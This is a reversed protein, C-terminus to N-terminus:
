GALQFAAALGAGVRLGRVGVPTEAVTGWHAADELPPETWTSWHVDIGQEQSAPATRRWRRSPGPGSGLSATCDPSPSGRPSCPARGATSSATRPRLSWPSARPSPPTPRAADDMDNMTIQIRGDPLEEVAVGESGGRRALVVSSGLALLLAAALVAEVQRTRRSRIPDPHQPTIAAEHRQREVQDTLTALLAGRFHTPTTM